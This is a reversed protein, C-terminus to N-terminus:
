TAMGVSTFQFCQVLHASGEGDMALFFLILIRLYSCACLRVLICACMFADKM